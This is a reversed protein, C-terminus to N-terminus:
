QQGSVRAMACDVVPYKSVLVSVRNGNMATVCELRANRGGGVGAGNMASCRVVGRVRKGEGVLGSAEFWV